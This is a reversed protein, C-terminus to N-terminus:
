FSFNRRKFYEAFTKFNFKQFCFFVEMKYNLVRGRVYKEARQRPHHCGYFIEKFFSLAAATQVLSGGAAFSDRACLFNGENKMEEMRVGEAKKRGNNHQQTGVCIEPSRLKKRWESLERFTKMTFFSPMHRTGKLFNIIIFLFVSIRRKCDVSDWGNESSGGGETFVKKIREVCKM